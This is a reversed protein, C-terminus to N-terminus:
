GFVKAQHSLILILLCQDLSEMGGRHAHHSYETTCDGPVHRFDLVLAQLNELFDHQRVPDLSMFTVQDVITAIAM